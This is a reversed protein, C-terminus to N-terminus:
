IYNCKIYLGNQTHHLILITNMKVQMYTSYGTKGAGNTSFMKRHQIVKISQQFNISNTNVYTHICIKTDIDRYINIYRYFYISLFLLLQRDCSLFHQCKSDLCQWFFGGLDIIRLLFFTSDVTM